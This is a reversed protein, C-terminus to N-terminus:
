KQLLLLEQESLKPVEEQPEEDEVPMEGKADKGKKGKRENENASRKGEKSTAKEGKKRRFYM